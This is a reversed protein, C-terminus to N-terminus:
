QLHSHIYHDDRRFVTRMTFVQFFFKFVQPNRVVDAESFVAGVKDLLEADLMRQIQHHAILDHEPFLRCFHFQM